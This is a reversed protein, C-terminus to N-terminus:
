IAEINVTMGECTVVISGPNAATVQIEAKANVVSETTTAGNVDFTVEIPADAYENLYTVTAVDTDDAVISQKDAYLSPGVPHLTSITDGTLCDVETVTIM